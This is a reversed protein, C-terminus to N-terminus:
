SFPSSPEGEGKKGKKAKNPGCLSFHKSEFSGEEERKEAVWRFDGFGLSSKYDKKRKVRM